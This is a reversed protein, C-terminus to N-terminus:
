LFFVMLIKTMDVNNVYVSRNPALNFQSKIVKVQFYGPFYMSNQTVLPTPVRILTSKGTPRIEKSFFIYATTPRKVPNNGIMDYM